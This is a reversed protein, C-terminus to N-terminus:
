PLGSSRNESSKDTGTGSSVTKVISIEGVLTDGFYLYGKEAPVGKEMEITLTDEGVEKVSIGDMPKKESKSSSIIFDTKGFEYKSNSGQNLVVAITDTDTATDADARAFTVKVTNDVANGAEGKLTVSPAVYPSVTVATRVSEAKDIETASIYYTVEDAPKETFTLTLIKNEVKVFPDILAEGGMESAYVQYTSNPVANTLTYAM